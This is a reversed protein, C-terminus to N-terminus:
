SNFDQECRGKVLISAVVLKGKRAEFAKQCREAWEFAYEKHSLNSIPLVIQAFNAINRRYFGCEEFMKDRKCEQATEHRCMRPILHVVRRHYLIDM